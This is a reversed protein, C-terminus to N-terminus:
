VAKPSRRRSKTAAPFPTAPDRIASVLSRDSGGGELNENKMPLGGHCGEGLLGTRDLTVEKPRQQTEQCSRDDRSQQQHEDVDIEKDETGDHQDRSPARCHQKMETSM